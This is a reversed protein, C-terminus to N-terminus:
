KDTENGAGQAPLTDAAAAEWGHRYAWYTHDFCFRAGQEPTMITQDGGDSRWSNDEAFTKAYQRIENNDM